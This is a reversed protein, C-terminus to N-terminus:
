RELRDEIEEVLWTVGGQRYVDLSPVHRTLRGIGYDGRRCARQVMSGSVPLPYYGDASPSYDLVEISTGDIGLIDDGVGTVEVSILAEAYGDSPYEFAEIGHDPCRAADLVWGSPPDLLQELNPLDVVKIADYLVPAAPNLYRYTEYHLDCVLQQGELGM